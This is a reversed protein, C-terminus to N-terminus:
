GDKYCKRYWIELAMMYWLMKARKEAPIPM